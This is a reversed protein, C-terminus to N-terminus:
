MGLEELARAAAAFRDPSIHAYKLTMQISSHGLLDRVDELPIGQLRLHSAYTHRLDRHTLARLQEGQAREAKKAAFRIPNELTKPLNRHIKGDQNLCFPHGRHPRGKEDTFFQEPRLLAHRSRRLLEVRLDKPVILTRASAKSKTSQVVGKVVDRRIKVAGTRFNCDEVFLGAVEGCRFGSRCGLLIELLWKPRHERIAVLLRSLESPHYWDFDQDGLDELPLRAWHNRSVLDEDVADSLIQKAMGICHNRTKPKLGKAQLDLKFQVGHSKRIESLMLSGILPILHNRIRGEPTAYGSPRTNVRLTTDKWHNAWDEFTEFGKVKHQKVQKQAARIGIKVESEHDTAEQESGFGRNFYERKKGTADTYSFRAAWKGRRKTAM